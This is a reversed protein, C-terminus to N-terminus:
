MVVEVNFIKGSGDLLISNETEVGNIFIKTVGSNKGDNNIVKINYVSRQYKYKIIYERWSKPICPSINIRNEEIKLGLIYEIGARYFWSSSGTYWTWGGRGALNQAGYIDAAIVYPEVKYKEAAEKTRAHEIPNIMRYLEVAKDGFGLMSEAIIVWIAGHTYQGGNERIGPVYAKIYGPKLKGKEFPPDLLKILGNERDVLHNELSELSIYKKDNDGAESITAWSQAISDIRCEENQLSGLVDGNDMFARKYWRGDWGNTNLSKKLNQMINKYKDVKELDQKRECIPIFDRLVTYLFFGLWVSEGKGKNGVSSFGDNWDGSGIKPLGNEGFVLSKEIARICHMYITEKLESKEYLDYREDIGEELIEGKIYNTEVDLISYDNTFKVYDATVYALWLLDDSFRTRIGKSTEEHWWHEVDGEIFQHMSAKIIQNKTIKSDVYKAAISDQLQDRFGYAGGAQYFATRAFLRSCITQYMCWGNLLINTSELPTNVQITEILNEWYRKVKELEEYCYTLNTYKYGMDQCDIINEEEGLLLCIEKEEYAELNVELQMAIITDKGLSNESNLNMYKLGDPNQLNGKGMFHRKDGTFSVIKENSSVYMVGSFDSNGLNKAVLMNSNEKLKLDIFGNSKIEDEDLVPKLYYIIKIKRKKPMENKLKLISIKVSDEKPVFITLNQSIGNSIHMYKAYGFGYTVFYDQNDPMPNLGLSWKQNTDEDELYIIESPIDTISNNSWSTIKNLRSNKSWTYGGLSDTVLTGFKENALIHSWVNPLRNNKNIKIKYERGDASFGGYENDYKLEQTKVTENVEEEFSGQKAIEFNSRKRNELYEEELDKLQLGIKGIHSDLVLNARFELSQIEKEDLNNLVFIGQSQNQLYMMNRNLIAREIGDKVYNEYSNEEENIIVLDIFINKTRFYEYAKLTEEIVHMDNINRIKVLLIPIDGSIGYNWLRSVGYSEELNEVNKKSLPNQFLIYSLMKQYVEINRRSLGLYRNEAEVRARSLEFSRKIKEENLFKNITEICKQKEDSVTIILDFVKKEEPKIYFTRKMAVIPDVTLRLKNTFPSSKEVLNPLGLNGRGVFKEKDLEYEMEGITEDKTYLNIALYMDKEDQNRNRRRVLITNTEELFEFTLFLNNFAMHAYDQTANSLVPELFSTIEITEEENGLNTFEVRRLEVPDKPSIGTILKTEISGDRRTIKNLDPSFSIEYFDPKSLYNMHNATWIRKTKVNKIYFFIGQPMDKTQKFRNILIDKYKSYGEGKQDMVITYNENSIVNSRNLDENIKNYSRVPYADYNKYKIKEVKEKEEKTIIVNEPMREELLIEVSQMEPNQMFRKQLIFDNFLNNISLLILGQHHAMYTKVPEYKKNKRLRSPTYDISEYFGYKDYMGQSELKKLNEIVEKPKETLALISGYSAVVMEDELGRKLGLWPIGFAKYQYNNNLDTLSFASESFGWPINLKKAYEMQSMIMFRSSEDLLSTKYKPMNINPMLYEFATGSWSILGKYKNLTTLTRSLNYWAKPPIDKKAIAVFSAQRAESALLDYYSDTLKNEEINFGISFLRNKEDYLKSFDTENILKDIQNIEESYKNESNIQIFFQKVVYLYGVFNGNDVSSIYRPILPSLDKLNYWNYLHGNWKQLSSVTDLMKKLLSVTDELNEYKLDYASIVALMGLSINTPSTRLAVKEKRNEQYNDPPLFKTNENINEKFFLWTRRGIDLVYDKDEKTLKETAKEEKKQKSINWMIFPAVLWLVSIAFFCISLISNPYIIGIFLAIIGLIVNALMTKYYSALDKKSKKEAEESTTWELLHKKSKIMRYSSVTMAHTSFYAKDPLVALSLIGRLISGQLNTIIPSFTHQKTQGDKKFIVRNLIELITPIFISIFCTLVIPWIKVNYAFDIITLIGLLVITFIETSSRMINDFIKYKSLTSLPNIKEKNEKNKIKRKLWLLIQTDGRIWRHLRTKFSSYSTPYGDMLMIDSALGCRLYSGELLDHSLVTNEPIENKLVDSFVKLDYIGKGTFIGEGFNDQYFDSIADSYSDTGAVGAFIRTFLSKRGAVLGIGVRPQIIGHGEIVLDKKPNLVPRNLIHAMAGILEFASNLVLDTDADLTIIYKIPIIKNKGQKAWEDITNVNWNFKTNQLIYENFQEIYGRKREFGFFSGEAENWTRKRYIFNFKPFKEDPYKNNLEETLEKGRKVLEDDFDEKESSSSSCDGLLTFYINPSKNALYYVELKKMLEEVKDKSKIITPIIVMSSFEEPIDDVLELKPLPKPKVVKNIVKQIIQVVITQVPILLLLFVLASTWINKTQM